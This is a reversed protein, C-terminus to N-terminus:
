IRKKWIMFNGRCNPCRYVRRQNFCKNCMKHLQSTGCYNFLLYQTLCICCENYEINGSRISEIEYLYHKNIEDLKINKESIIAYIKDFENLDILKNYFININPYDLSLNILELILEDISSNIEYYKVIRYSCGDLGMSLGKKCIYIYKKADKAFYDIADYKCKELNWHSYKNFLLERDFIKDVYQKQKADIIIEYLQEKKDVLQNDNYYELLEGYSRISNNEKVDYIYMEIMKDYDKSINKHSNALQYAVDHGNKLALAYYEIAKKDALNYYYKSVYILSKYIGCEISKEYYYLEDDRYNNELKIIDNNIKNHHLGLLYLAYNNGKNYSKLLLDKSGKLIGLQNMADTSGYLIAKNYYKMYLPINLNFLYNYLGLFLYIIDNHEIHHKIDHFNFKKHINHINDDGNHFNFKKHINHIDDYDDNRKKIHCIGRLADFQLDDPCKKLICLADDYNAINHYYIAIEFLGDNNNSLLKIFLEISKSDNIYCYYKFYQIQKLIKCNDGDLRDIFNKMIKLDKTIIMHYNIMAKIGRNPTSSNTIYKMYLLNAKKYNDEYYYYYNAKKLLYKKDNISNLYYGLENIKNTQLFEDIINSIQLYKNLRGLRISANDKNEFVKRPEIKVRDDTVYKYNNKIYQRKNQVSSVYRNNNISIPM